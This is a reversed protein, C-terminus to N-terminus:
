KKGSRVNTDTSSARWRAKLWLRLTLWLHALTTALWGHDRYRRASTVIAPELRELYAGARRARVLFDLDEGRGFAEDFGGIRDFLTRSVLWAQDGFPMQLLRSRLNAGHANLLALRPGDAAFALTFWGLRMPQERASEAFAAAASFVAADPRSDAHVLWLCDSTAASVGRNLQVARGSPGHVEVLELGPRGRSANQRPLPKCLSLVVECAIPNATIRKLLGACTDDGPGVPIVISLSPAKSKVAALKGAPYALHQSLRRSIRGTARRFRPM